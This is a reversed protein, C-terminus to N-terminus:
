DAASDRPPAPSGNSLYDGHHRRRLCHFDLQAPSGSSFYDGRRRRRRCRVDLQAPSGSSVYDGRRRRTFRKFLLRRPPPLPQLMGRVLTATYLGVVAKEIGRYGLPANTMAHVGERARGPREVRPRGCIARGTPASLSGPPEARAERLLAGRVVAAVLFRIFRKPWSPAVAFRCGGRLCGGRRHLVRRGATAAVDLMARARPVASRDDGGGALCARRAM